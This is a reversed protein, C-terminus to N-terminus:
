SLKGHKRETYHVFPKAKEACIKKLSYRLVSLAKGSASIKEPHWFVNFTELHSKTIFFKQRSGVTKWWLARERSKQQWCPLLQKKLTFDSDKVAGTVNTHLSCTLEKHVSAKNSLNGRVKLVKFCRNQTKLFLRSKKSFCSWCFFSLCVSCPKIMQKAWLEELFGLLLFYIGFCSFAFCFLSQSLLHHCLSPLPALKAWSGVRVEHSKVSSFFLKLLLFWDDSDGVSAKKSM